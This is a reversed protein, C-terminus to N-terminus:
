EREDGMQVAGARVVNLIYLMEAGLLHLLAELSQLFWEETCTLRKFVECFPEHQCANTRWCLEAPHRM